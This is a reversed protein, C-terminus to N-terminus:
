LECVGARTQVATPSRALCRDWPGRVNSWRTMAAVALRLLGSLVPAQAGADQMVPATRREGQGSLRFHAYLHECRRGDYRFRM